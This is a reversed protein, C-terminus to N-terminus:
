WCWCQVPLCQRGTIKFFINYKTHKLAELLHCITLLFHVNSYYWHNWKRIELNHHIETSCCRMLHVGRRLSTPLTATTAWPFMRAQYGETTSCMSYHSPRLNTSSCSLDHWNTSTYTSANSLKHFLNSIHLHWTSGENQSIFTTFKCVALLNLKECTYFVDQRSKHGKSIWKFPLDLGQPTCWFHEQINTCSVCPQENKLRPLPGVGKRWLQRTLWHLILRCLM